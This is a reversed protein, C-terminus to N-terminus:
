EWNAGSDGSVAAADCQMANVDKLSVQPASPKFSTCVGDHVDFRAASLSAM